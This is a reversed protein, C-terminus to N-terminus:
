YNAKFWMSVHCVSWVNLCPLHYRSATNCYLSWSTVSHLWFVYRFLSHLLEFLQILSFCWPIPYLPPFQRILVSILVPTHHRGIIFEFLILMCHLWYLSPVVIVYAIWHWYNGHIACILTWVDQHPYNSSPLQLYWNIRVFWASM